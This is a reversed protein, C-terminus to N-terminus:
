WTTATPTTCSTRRSSKPCTTPPKPTARGIRTATSAQTTPGDRPGVVCTPLRRGAPRPGPAPRERRWDKRKINVRACSKDRRADCTHWLGMQELWGDPTIELLALRNYTITGAPMDARVTAAADAPLMARVTDPCQRLIRRRCAVEPPANSARGCPPSTRVGDDPTTEPPQLPGPPCHDRDLLTSERDHQKESCLPTPIRRSHSPRRRHRGAHGRDQGRLANRKAM